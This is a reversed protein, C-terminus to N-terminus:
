IERVKSEERKSNAPVGEFAGDAYKKSLIKYRRDTMVEKISVESYDGVGNIECNGHIVSV